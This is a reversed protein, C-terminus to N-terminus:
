NPHTLHKWQFRVSLPLSKEEAQQKRSMENRMVKSSLQKELVSSQLHFKIAWGCAFTYISVLSHGLCGLPFVADKRHSRVFTDIMPPSVPEQDLIKRHSKKKRATIDFAEEMLYEKNHSACWEPRKRTNRFCKFPSLQDM